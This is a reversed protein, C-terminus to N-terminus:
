DQYQTIANLDTQWITSITFPKLNEGTKPKGQGRAIGFAKELSKDNLIRLFVDAFYRLLIPPPYENADIFHNYWHLPLLGVRTTGFEGYTIEDRGHGSEIKKIQDRLDAAREYDENEVAKQLDSKLQDLQNTVSEFANNKTEKEEEDNISIFFIGKDSSTVQSFPIEEHPDAIHRAPIQLKIDDVYLQALESIRGGTYLGLLTMWFM